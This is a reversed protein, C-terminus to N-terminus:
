QTILPAGNSGSSDPNILFSGDAMAMPVTVLSVRGSSYCNSKPYCAPQPSQLGIGLIVGNPDDANVEVHTLRAVRNLPLGSSTEIYIHDGEFFEQRSNPIKLALTIGLGDGFDKFTVTYDKPVATAAAFRLTGQGASCVGSSCTDGMGVISGAWHSDTTGDVGDTGVYLVRKTGAQYAANGATPEVAVFDGIGYPNHQGLTHHSYVTSRAKVYNNESMWDYNHENTEAAVVQVQGSIRCKSITECFNALGIDVWFESARSSRKSHRVKFFGNISPKSANFATTVKVRDGPKIDHSSNLKLAAVPGIHDEYNKEIFASFSYALSNPKSWSATGTISECGLNYPLGIDFFNGSEQLETLTAHPGVGVHQIRAATQFNGFDVHIWDYIGFSSGEIELVCKSGQGYDVGKAGVINFSLQNLSEELGPPYVFISGWPPDGGDVGGDLDTTGAGRGRDSGCNQYLFLTGILMLTIVILFKWRKFRKM